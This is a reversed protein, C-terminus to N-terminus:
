APGGVDGGFLPGALAAAPDAIVLEEADRRHLAPLRLLDSSDRTVLRDVNHELCCALHLADPAKLNYNRRLSRAWEGTRRDIQAMIVGQADFMVDSPHPDTWPRPTGSVQLLTECLIVPNIIIEVARTTVNRWLMTMPRKADGGENVFDIWCCADWFQREAM